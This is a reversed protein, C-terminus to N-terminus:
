PHTRCKLNMAKIKELLKKNNVFNEPSLQIKINLKSNIDVGCKELRFKTYNYYLELATEPTDYKGLKQKRPRM